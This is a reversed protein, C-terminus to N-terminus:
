DQFLYIFVCKHNQTESVATLFAAYDQLVHATLSNRQHTRPHLLLQDSRLQPNGRECRWCHIRWRRDRQGAGGAAPRCSHDGGGRRVADPWIIVVGWVNEGSCVCVCVCSPEWSQVKGTSSDAWIAGVLNHAEDFIVVAGSLEINHARRSQPSLPSACRGAFTM